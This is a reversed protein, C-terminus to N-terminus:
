GSSTLHRPREAAVSTVIKRAVEAHALEALPLRLKRRWNPYSDNTGPMNAQATESAIDDIQVMFLRASSRSLFQHIAAALEATLPVAESADESIGAPLLGSERLAAVLAQKDAHRARRAEALEADNRLVGAALRDGLDHEEWFGKLTPLDHTSVCAAALPPYTQPAKFRGGENEFYLVRYSCLRADNMRERFGEPVTGLDEGIVLCNNRQSELAVIALLDSLPYNVYAGLATPVGRPVWFLRQLGMAHDIRLAGFHRMNARLLAIFEAYGTKRMHAPKMPVVGWEQGAENFPDPPAGVRAGAAFVDQAGWVDAGDPSASVALDGYIGIGMGLKGARAACAALQLDAQWQLYQHFILRDSNERAFRLCPESSPERYERPWVTWDQTGFAECLALHLSFLDLARGAKARFAAFADGRADGAVNLHHVHFHEYLASFIEYKVTSVRDYDVLSTARASLVNASINQATMKARVDVSEAFDDIATVDLYLPNLFHRSHPSYPSAHSPTQPFLAHLPNVGVADAGHVNSWELLEMLDTFDGIGLNRASRLAYLQSSVGWCRKGAAIAPPLYCQEPTVIIATSIEGVAGSLHLRHYGLPLPPLHFTRREMMRGDIERAAMPPLDSFDLRVPQVDGNETHMVCSLSHDVADVPLHLAFAISAGERGVVVPPLMERWPEEEFTSIGLAVDASSQAPIGQAGLIARATDPSIEHRHGRIDWYAPLISALESLRRLAEDGNM